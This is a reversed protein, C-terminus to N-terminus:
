HAERGQVRNRRAAWRFWHLISTKNQRKDAHGFRVSSSREVRRWPVNGPMTRRTWLGCTVGEMYKLEHKGTGENKWEMEVKHVELLDRCGGRGERRTWLSGDPIDPGDRGRIAGNAVVVREFVVKVRGHGGTEERGNGWGSYTGVKGRRM